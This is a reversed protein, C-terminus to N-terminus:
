ERLQVLQPRLELLLYVSELVLLVQVVVVGETEGYHIAVRVEGVEDDAPVNARDVSLHLTLVREQSGFLRWDPVDLLLLSVLVLLTAESVSPLPVLFLSTVPAIGVLRNSFSECRLVVVHIVVHVVNKFLM